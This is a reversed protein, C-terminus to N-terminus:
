QTTTRSQQDFSFDYDNFDANASLALHPEDIDATMAAPLMFGDVNSNSVHMEIRTGDSYSADVQRALGAPGVGVTASRLSTGNIDHLTFLRENGRVGAEEYLYHRPWMLPDLMSLDADQRAQPIFWPVSTFHVVYSVGPQYVGVGQLHFHLWPFHRMAMAVNLRFTYSPPGATRDFPVPNSQVAGLGVSRAALVLFVVSAGSRAAGEVLRM